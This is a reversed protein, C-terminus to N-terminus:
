RDPLPFGAPWRSQLSKCRRSEHENCVPGSLDRLYQELSDRMMSAYSKLAPTNLLTEQSMWCEINTGGLSSRLLGIPIWPWPILRSQYEKLRRDLLESVRDVADCCGSWIRSQSM